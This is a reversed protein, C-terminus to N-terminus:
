YIEYYEDQNDEIFYKFWDKGTSHASYVESTFIINNKDRLDIKGTYSKGKKFAITGRLSGNSMKLTKLCTFTGM